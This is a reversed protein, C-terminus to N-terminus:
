YYFVSFIIKLLVPDPVGKLMVWGQDEVEFGRNVVKTELVQQKLAEDVEWDMDMTERWLQGLFADSVGIEAGNAQACVRAAINITTGFYDMRGTKPCKQSMSPYGYHIGMRVLLGRSRPPRRALDITSTDDAIYDVVEPAWIASQIEKQAHLCFNLADTTSSFVIFFGDGTAKVEYGNFAELITRIIKDHQALAQCMQSPHDWWLSTSDIIDTFVCAIPGQPTEQEQTIATKSEKKEGSKSMNFVM